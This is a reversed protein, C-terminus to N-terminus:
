CGRPECGTERGGSQRIHRNVASTASAAPGCGFICGSAFRGGIDAAATADRGADLFRRVLALARDTATGPEYFLDRAVRRREASLRDPYALAAAAADGVEEPSRVLTAASRLLTVKEPNIRAARPLDPADFVLLPRDLVLFEFGVSSHDTVM